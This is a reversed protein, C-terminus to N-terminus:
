KRKRFGVSRAPREAAGTGQGPTGSAYKLEKLRKFAAALKPNVPPPNQLAELFVERNRGTLTIIEHERITARSREVLTSIMFDSLTVGELDAARQFMTKLDASVRAELREDKLEGRGSKSRQAQVAM